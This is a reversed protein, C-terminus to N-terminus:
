VRWLICNLNLMHKHKKFNFFIDHSVQKSVKCKRPICVKKMNIREFSIYLFAFLVALSQMCLILISHKLFFFYSLSDFSKSFFSASVRGAM